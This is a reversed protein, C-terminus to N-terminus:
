VLVRDESFGRQRARRPERGDTEGEKARSLRETHGTARDHVFVDPVGNRDGRVLNTASSPFAVVSGDASISPKMSPADTEVGSSSISARWVRRHVLDRVFVDSVESGTADGPVLSTAGSAFAAFRGSASLVAGLTAGDAEAGETSLNARQVHLVVDDPVVHASVPEAQAQALILAFGDRCGTRQRDVCAKAFRPTAGAGTRDDKKKKKGGGGGKKEGFFFFVRTVSPTVSRADVDCSRQTGCPKAIASTAARHRGASVEAFVVRLECSFKPPISDQVAIMHLPSTGM